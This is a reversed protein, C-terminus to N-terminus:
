DPDIYFAYHPYKDYIYHDGNQIRPIVKLGFVYGCKVTFAKKASTKGSSSTGEWYWVPSGPTTPPYSATAFVVTAGQNPRAFLRYSKMFGGAQHAKFKVRLREGSALEIIDCMGVGAAFDVIKVNTGNTKRIEVFEAVPQRNEIRIIIHNAPNPVETLEQVKNGPMEHFYRLKVKYIGHPQKASQWYALLDPWTWYEYIGGVAYPKVVQYLGTVNNLTTFDQMTVPGLNIRNSTYTGGFFDFRKKINTLPDMLIIPSGVEAGSSEDLPQLLVQYYDITQTGTLIEAFQGFIQLNHGFASDVFEPTYNVGGPPPPPVNALGMKPDGPTQEIDDRDVNGVRTFFVGLGIGTRYSPMGELMPDSEEIVVTTSAFQGVNTLTEEHLVEESGEIVQSFTVLVEPIATASPREYLASFWGGMPKTVASGILTTATASKEYIKVELFPWGQPDGIPIPNGGAGLVTKQHYVTGNLYFTVQADLSGTFLGLLGLAM